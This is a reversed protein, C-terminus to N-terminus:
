DSLSGDVHNMEVVAQFLLAHVLTLYALLPSSFFFDGLWDISWNSNHTKTPTGEYQDDPPYLNCLRNFDDDYTHFAPERGGTIVDVELRLNGKVLDGYARDRERERSETRLNKGAIRSRPNWEQREKILQTRRQKLKLSKTTQQKDTIMINNSSCPNSNIQNIQIWGKANEVRDPWNRIVSKVNKTTNKDKQCNPTYMNWSHFQAHRKNSEYHSINWVKLWNM